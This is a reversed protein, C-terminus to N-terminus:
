EWNVERKGLKFEALWAPSVTGVEIPKMDKRRRRVVALLAILVSLTVAFAIM